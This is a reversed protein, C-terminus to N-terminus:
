RSRPSTSARRARTPATTSGSASSRAPDPVPPGLRVDARAVGDGAGALQAAAEDLRGLDGAHVTLLSRVSSLARAAGTLKARQAAAAVDVLRDGIALAPRLAGEHEYTALRM